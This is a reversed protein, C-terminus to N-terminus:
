SILLEQAECPLSRARSEDDDTPANGARRASSERAARAATGITLRVLPSRLAQAVRHAGADVDPGHHDHARARVERSPTTTATRHPSTRDGPLRPILGDV